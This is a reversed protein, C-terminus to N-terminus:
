VLEELTLPCRDIGFLKAEGRHTNEKVTVPELHAPNCCWRNRCKHDLVLSEPIPGVFAEYSLRHAMREKGKWYLRVYGNRNLRGLEMLWCTSFPVMVIGKLVKEILSIKM